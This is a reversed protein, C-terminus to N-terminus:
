KMYPAAREVFKRYVWRVMWPETSAAVAEEPTMWRVGSNEDAKMHLEMGEAQLLYTVNLHLHGSVYRGNKVHGPVTLNELTFIDPRLPHTVLETEERVERMAVALLDCDGDAHGGVFSWSDFIRHYCMAVRTCDPSLVWASATMHALTNSREYADANGGLFWLMMEKDRREQECLPVFRRIEEIRDM